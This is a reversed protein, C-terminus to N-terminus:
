PSLQNNEKKVQKCDRCVHDRNHRELAEQWGQPGYGWAEYESDKPCYPCNSSM